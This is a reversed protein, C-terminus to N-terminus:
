VRKVRSGGFAMRREDELDGPGVAEVDDAVERGLVYRQEGQVRVRAGQAQAGPQGGAHDARVRRLVLLREDREQLVDATAQRALADQEGRVVLVDPGDGPVGLPQLRVVEMGNERQSVIRRRCSLRAWISAAQRTPTSVGFVTNTSEASSRSRPACSTPKGQTKLGTSDSAKLVRNRRCTSSSRAGGVLEALFGVRLHVVATGQHQLGDDGAPVLLQVRQARIEVRLAPREGDEGAVLQALVRRPEAVHAHGDNASHPQGLERLRSEAQQALEAVVTDALDLELAVRAVPM